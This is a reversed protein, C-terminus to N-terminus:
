ALTFRGCSRSTDSILKPPKDHFKGLKSVFIYYQFLKHAHAKSRFGNGQIGKTPGNSVDINGLDSGVGYQIIKVALTRYGSEPMTLILCKSSEILEDKASAM